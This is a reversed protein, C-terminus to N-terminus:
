KTVYDEISGRSEALNCLLRKLFDAALTLFEDMEKYGAKGKRFARIDNVSTKRGKATEEKTIEKLLNEFEKIAQGLESTWPQGGTTSIPSTTAAGSVQQVVGSSSPTPDRQLQMEMPPAANPRVYPMWHARKPTTRAAGKALDAFLPANLPKHLEEGFSFPFEVANLLAQQQEGVGTAATAASATSPSDSFFTPLPPPGATMLFPLMSVPATFPATPDLWYGEINEASSPLNSMDIFSDRANSGTAFAEVDDILNNLDERSQPYAFPSEPPTQQPAPPSFSSRASPAASRTASTAQSPNPSPLGLFEAVEIPINRRVGEILDKDWHTVAEMIITERNSKNLEFLLELFEPITVKLNPHICTEKLYKFSSGVAEPVVLRWRALGEFTAVKRKAAKIADQTFTMMQHPYQEPSQHSWFTHLLRAVFAQYQEGQGFEHKQDIYLMLALRKVKLNAEYDKLREEDRHHRTRTGSRPAIMHDGM